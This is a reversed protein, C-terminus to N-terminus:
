KLILVYEWNYIDDDPNNSDIIWGLDERLLTDHQLFPGPEM